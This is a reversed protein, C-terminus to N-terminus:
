KKLEEVAKKLEEIQRQQSEVKVSLENLKKLIDVGDVILKKTEILGEKFKSIFDTTISQLSVIQTQQEKMGEVLFPTIESSTISKYKTKDNADNGNGMETILSPLVQEVEQAIFGYETKQDRKPDKWNFSVGRLQTIISLPDSITDINKKLRIDSWNTWAASGGVAGGTYAQMWGSGIGLAFYGNGANNLTGTYGGRIMAFSSSLSSNLTLTYFTPSSSTKVAQNLYTGLWNGCSECYIDGRVVTHGGVELKYTPSIGIGVNTGNDIIQSNGVTYTGTYKTVYNATGTGAPLYAGYTSSYFYPALVYKSGYVRIWSTDIMYWGGGYSSSYWGTDGTTRLWTDTGNLIVNGDQSLGGNAALSGPVTLTAGTGVTIYNVTGGDFIKATGGTGGYNIYMGDALSSQSRIVRINAYVDNGGQTIVGTGGVAISTAANFTGNVDLKYGPSTTGIGVNGNNLLTLKTSSGALANGAIGSSYTNFALSGGAPDLSIDSAYGTGIYVDGSGPNYRNFGVTPYYSRLSIGTGTGTNQKSMIGDNAAIVQLPIVPGTTGIGVNGTVYLNAMNPSALTQTGIPANFNLTGTIAQVEKPVKFPKSTFSRFTLILLLFFIVLVVSSYSNKKHSQKKIM